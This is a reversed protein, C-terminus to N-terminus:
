KSKFDALPSILESDTKFYYESKIVNYLWDLYSNSRRKFSYNLKAEM